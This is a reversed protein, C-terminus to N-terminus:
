LDVRVIWGRQTWHQFWPGLKAELEPANTGVGRDRARVSRRAADRARARVPARVRRARRGHLAPGRRGPLRGPEDASARTPHEDRRAAARYDASPYALSLLQASPHVVLRARLWDEEKVTAVQAMDLRPADPGDFAEIFAWEAGALDAVLPDDKCPATEAVFRPLAGGLATMALTKGVNM